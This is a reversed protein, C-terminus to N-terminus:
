FPSCSRGFSVSGASTTTSPSRRAQTAYTRAKTATGVPLLAGICFNFDTHDEPLRGGMLQRSIISRGAAIPVCPACLM